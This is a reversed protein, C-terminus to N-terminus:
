AVEAVASELICLAHAHPGGIISVRTWEAAELQHLGPGNFRLECPALKDSGQVRVRQEVLLEVDPQVKANLRLGAMNGTHVWLGELCGLLAAKRNIM